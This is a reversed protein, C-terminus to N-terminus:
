QRRQTVAAAQLSERAATLQTQEQNYHEPKGDCHNRKHLMPKLACLSWHNQLIPKARRCTPDEQVLFRVQTGQM